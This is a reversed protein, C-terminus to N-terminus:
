VPEAAIVWDHGARLGDERQALDLAQDRLTEIRGKLASALAADHLREARRLAMDLQSNIWRAKYRNAFRRASVVRFGDAQLREVAWEAPYERYPTEGALLLCADRLRGIDRVTAEAPGAAAGTVYPDLGVVYLRGAVHPRLRRFLAQQFYPAFGEVAGLLYDALVTDFVEGQLLGPDQWAGVILRDDPRARDGVAERVQAGHDASGTVATWRSTDLGLVWRMSNVGTGAELLAGWPRGDQLREVHAFLGRSAPADSRPPPSTM